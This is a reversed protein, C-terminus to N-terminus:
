LPSLVVADYHGKLKDAQEKGKQTLGCDVMTIDPNANFISECHRLVDIRMPNKLLNSFTM